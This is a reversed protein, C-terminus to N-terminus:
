TMLILVAGRGRRRTRSPSPGLRFFRPARWLFLFWCSFGRGSGPFNQSHEINFYPPPTDHFRSGDPGDHPSRGDEPTKGVVSFRTRLKTEARDKM